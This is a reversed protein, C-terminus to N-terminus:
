SSLPQLSLVVIFRSLLWGHSTSSVPFSKMPVPSDVSRQFKKPFAASKLDPELEMGKQTEWSLTALSASGESGWTAPPQPTVLAIEPMVVGNEAACDWLMHFWHRALDESVLTLPVSAVPPHKTEPLETITGGVAPVYPLMALFMKRSPPKLFTSKETNLVKLNVSRYVASNRTSNNLRNLLGRM